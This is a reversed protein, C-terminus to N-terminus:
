IYSFNHKSPSWSIAEALFRAPLITSSNEKNDFWKTKNERAM